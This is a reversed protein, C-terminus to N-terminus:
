PNDIPGRTINSTSLRCANVLTYVGEFATHSWGDTHHMTWGRRSLERAAAMRTNPMSMLHQILATDAHLRHSELISVINTM